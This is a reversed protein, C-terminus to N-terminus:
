LTEPSRLVPSAPVENWNSWVGERANLCDERKPETTAERPCTKRIFTRACLKHGTENRASSGSSTTALTNARYLRTLECCM